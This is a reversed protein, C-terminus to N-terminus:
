STKVQRIFDAADYLGLRNAVCRLLNLQQDLGGQHQQFKPINKMSENSLVGGGFLAKSILQDKRIALKEEESGNAYNSPATKM